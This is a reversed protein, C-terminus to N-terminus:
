DERVSKKLSNRLPIIIRRMLNQHQKTYNKMEFDDLNKGKLKKIEKPTMARKKDQKIGFCFGSDDDLM